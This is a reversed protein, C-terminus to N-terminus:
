ALIFSNYESSFLLFFFESAKTSNNILINWLWVARFRCCLLRAIEMQLSSPFTKEKVYLFLDLIICQIPLDGKKTDNM